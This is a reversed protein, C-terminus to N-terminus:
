FLLSMQPPDMAYNFSAQSSMQSQSQKQPATTLHVDGRSTNWMILPAPLIVDHHGSTASQELPAIRATTTTMATNSVATVPSTTTALSM